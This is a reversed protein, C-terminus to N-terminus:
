SGAGTGVQVSPAEISGDKDVYAKEVNDVQWSQLKATQLAVSNVTLPVATPADNTVTVNVYTPVVDGWAPYQAGMKLVQGLTGKALTSWGYLGYYNLM